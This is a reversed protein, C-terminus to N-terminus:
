ELGLIRMAEELPLGREGCEVREKQKKLREVLEPKLKLDEELDGFIEALKEEVIEEVLARLKEESISIVDM